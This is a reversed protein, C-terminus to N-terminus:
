PLGEKTCIDKRLINPQFSNNPTNTKFFMWELFMDLWMLSDMPIMEDGWKKPPVIINKECLNPVVFSNRHVYPTHFIYIYLKPRGGWGPNLRRLILRYVKPIESSFFCPNRRWGPPSPKCQPPPYSWLIASATKISKIKSELPLSPSWFRGKFKAEAQAPNLPKRIRLDWLLFDRRTM